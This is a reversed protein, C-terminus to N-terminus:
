KRRFLIPMTIDPGIAFGHHMDKPRKQGDKAHKFDFNELLYIFLLKLADQALFRGPCAHYGSGWTISDESVSAFHHKNLDGQMRKRLFREADFSGADPHIDTDLNLQQNPFSLQTGAPIHLGDDFTWPSVVM